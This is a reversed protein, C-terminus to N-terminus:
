EEGVTIALISPSNADRNEIGNLYFIFIQAIRLSLTKLNNLNLFKSRYHASQLYVLCAM